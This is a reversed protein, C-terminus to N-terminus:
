AHPTVLAFGILLLIGWGFLSSPELYWRRGYRRDPLLTLLLAGVLSVGLVIACLLTASM